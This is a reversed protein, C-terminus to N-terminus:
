SLGPMRYCSLRREGSAELYFLRSGDASLAFRWWGLGRHVFSRGGRAPSPWVDIGNRHAVCLAGDPAFALGGAGRTGPLTLPKHSRTLEWVRVDAREGGAALQSGDASFALAEVKATKSVHLLRM